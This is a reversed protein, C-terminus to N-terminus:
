NHFIKRKTYNQSKNNELVIKPIYQSRKIKKKNLYKPTLTKTVKNGITTQPVMGTNNSPVNLLKGRLPLIGFGASLAPMCFSTAVRSYMSREDFYLTHIGKSLLLYKAQTNLYRRKLENPVDEKTLETTFFSKKPPISGDEVLKMGFDNLSKAQWFALNMCLDYIRRETRSFKIVDKYECALAIGYIMDNPLREM